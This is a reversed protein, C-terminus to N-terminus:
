DFTGSIGPLNVNEITVNINEIYADRGPKQHRLAPCFKCKWHMILNAYYWLHPPCKWPKKLGYVGPQIEKYVLRIKKKPM